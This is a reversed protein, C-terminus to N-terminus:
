ELGYTVQVPNRKVETDKMDYRCDEWFQKAPYYAVQEFKYGCCSCESPVNRIKNSTDVFIRTVTNRLTGQLVEIIIPKICNVCFARIKTYEAKACDGGAHTDEASTSPVPM